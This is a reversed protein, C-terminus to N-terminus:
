PVRSFSSHPVPILYHAFSGTNINELQMEIGSGTTGTRESVAALWEKQCVTKRVIM